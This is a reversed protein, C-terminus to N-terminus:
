DYNAHAFFAMVSSDITSILIPFNEIHANYPEPFGATGFTLLHRAHRCVPLGYYDLSGDGKKRVPVGEFQVDIPAGGQIIGKFNCAEPLMEYILIEMSDPIRREERVDPHDQPFASGHGNIDPMRYSSGPRLSWSKGPSSLGSMHVAKGDDYDHWIRIEEGYGRTQYLSAECGKACTFMQVLPHKRHPSSFIDLFQMLFITEGGCFKCTPAKCGSEAYPHGGIRPSTGPIMMKPDESWMLDQAPRGFDTIHKYIYNYDSLSLNNGRLDKAKYKEYKKTSETNHKTGTRTEIDGNEEKTLYVEGWPGTLSTREGNKRFDAITGDKLYVQKM